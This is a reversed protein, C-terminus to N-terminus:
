MILFQKLLIIVKTGCRGCSDQCAERMFPYGPNGPECSEPHDEAWRTCHSSHDLCPRPNLDEKPFLPPQPNEIRPTDPDTDKCCFRDEGTSDDYGCSQPPKDNM